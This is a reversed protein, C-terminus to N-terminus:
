LIEEDKFLALAHDLSDRMAIMEHLLMPLLSSDSPQAPVGLTSTPTNLAKLAGKITYGEEYLLHRIRQLLDVDSPRYYRRGGPSKMPNIQKFRSEWFRLVHQPVDLDVSVERITRLADPAKKITRHDARSVPM